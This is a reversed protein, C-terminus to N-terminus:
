HIGYDYRLKLLSIKADMHLVFWDSSLFPCLGILVDTEALSSSQTVSDTAILISSMLSVLHMDLTSCGSESFTDEVLILLICLALLRTYSGM